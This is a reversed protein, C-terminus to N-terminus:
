VKKQNKWLRWDGNCRGLQSCDTGRVEPDLKIGVGDVPVPGDDVSLHLVASYRSCHIVQLGDIFGCVFDAVQVWVGLILDTDQQGSGKLSAGSGGSWRQPGPGLTCTLVCVTGMYCWMFSM